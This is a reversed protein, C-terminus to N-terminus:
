CDVVKIKYLGNKLKDKEQNNECNSYLMKNCKNISLKAMIPSQPPAEKTTSEAERIALFNPIDSKTIPNVITAIAVDAGSNATVTEAAKLFWGAIETPFTMPELIKLKPIIKPKTAKILGIVIELVRRLLSPENSTPVPM